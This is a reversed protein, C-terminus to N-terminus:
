YPGDWNFKQKTLVVKKDKIVDLVYVDAAYESGHTKYKSLLIEVIDIRQFIM